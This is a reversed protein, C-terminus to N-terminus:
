TILGLATIDGEAQVNSGWSALLTQALCAEAPVVVLALLAVLWPWHLWPWSSM